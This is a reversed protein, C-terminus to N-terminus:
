PQAHGELHTTHPEPMLQALIRGSAPTPAMPTDTEKSNISKRVVQSGPVGQVCQEHRESRGQGTQLDQTILSHEMSIESNGLNKLEMM